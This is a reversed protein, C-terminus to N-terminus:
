LKSEIKITEEQMEVLSIKLITNEAQEKSKINKEIYKGVVKCIHECNIEKNLSIYIKFM